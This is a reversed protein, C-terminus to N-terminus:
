RPALLQPYNGLSMDTKATLQARCATRHGCARRTSRTRVPFRWTCSWRRAPFSMGYGWGRFKKAALELVFALWDVARVYQVSRVVWQLKGVYLTKGIHSAIATEANPASLTKCYQASEMTNHAKWEHARNFPGPSMQTEADLVIDEAHSSCCGWGGKPYQRSRGTAVRCGRM